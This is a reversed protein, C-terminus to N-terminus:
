CRLYFLTSYLLYLLVSQLAASYCRTTGAPPTSPRRIPLPSPSVCLPSWPKTGVPASWRGSPGRPTIRWCVSRGVPYPSRRLSLSPLSMSRCLSPLVPPPSCLPPLFPYLFSLQFAPSWLLLFLFTSLINISPPSVHILTSPCFRHTTPPPFFLCSLFILLFFICFVLQNFISLHKWLVLSLLLLLSTFLHSFFSLLFVFVSVHLIIYGLAVILYHSKFNVNCQNIIKIQNTPFCYNSSHHWVFVATAGSLLSFFWREFFCMKSQIRKLLGAIM